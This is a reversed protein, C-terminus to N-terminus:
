KAGIKDILFGNKWALWTLFLIAIIVLRKIGNWITKKTDKFGNLLETAAAVNEPTFLTVVAKVQVVEEDSFRSCPHDQNFADRIAQIDAPTLNREPYTPESWDTM